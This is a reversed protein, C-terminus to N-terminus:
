LEEEEEDYQDRPVARQHASFRGTMECFFVLPRGLSDFILITASM